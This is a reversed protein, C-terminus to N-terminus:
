ITLVRHSRDHVATARGATYTIRNALPYGIPKKIRSVKFPKACHSMTKTAGILRNDFSTRQLAPGLIRYLTSLVRTCTSRSPCARMKLLDAGSLNRGLRLSDTEHLSTASSTCHALQLMLFPFFCSNWACKARGCTSAMYPSSPRQSEMPPDRICLLHKVIWIM